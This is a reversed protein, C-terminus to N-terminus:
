EVAEKPQHEARGLLIIWTTCEFNAPETDDTDAQNGDQVEDIKSIIAHVFEKEKDFCVNFFTARLCLFLM